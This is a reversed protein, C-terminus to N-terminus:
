RAPKEPAVGLRKAGRASAERLDAGVRRGEGAAAIAEALDAVRHYTGLRCAALKLGEKGGRLWRTLAAATEDPLAWGYAALAAEHAVVESSGPAAELAAIARAVRAEARVEYKKWWYAWRAHVPPLRTRTIAGLARFAAARLDRDENVPSALALLGPVDHGDGVAGLAVVAAWRERPTAFRDALRTHVAEALADSRLGVRALGLLAEIRVEPARERLLRGLGRAAEVGRSAVLARALTLGRDKDGLAEELAQGVAEARAPTGFEVSWATPTPEVTAVAPKEASAPPTTKDQRTAPAELVKTPEEVVRAPPASEEAGAVPALLLLVLLMLVSRPLLRSGSVSM